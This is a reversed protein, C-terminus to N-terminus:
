MLSVLVDLSHSNSESKGRDVFLTVPEAEYESMQSFDICGVFKLSHGNRLECLDTLAGATM